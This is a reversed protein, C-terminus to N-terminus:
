LVQAVMVLTAPKRGVAVVVLTLLELVVTLTVRLELVVAVMVLLVARVRVVVVVAVPMDVTSVRLPQAQGLLLLMLGLEVRAVRTELPTVELAVLVVALVGPNTQFDTAAMTETFREVPAVLVAV